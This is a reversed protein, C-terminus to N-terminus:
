PQPVLTAAVPGGGDRYVYFQRVSTVQENERAVIVIENSGPWLPVNSTFELSTRSSRDRSSTYFVKRTEIKAADNTVYIYVDEVHNDDKVVGKVTFTGSSVALAAPALEIIPPIVQWREVFQPAAPGSAKALDSAKVFGFKAAGVAVKVFEGFM